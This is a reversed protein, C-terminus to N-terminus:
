AFNSETNSSSQCPSAVVSDDRLLTLIFLWFSSSLRSSYNGGIKTPFHKLISLNSNACKPMWTQNKRNFVSLSSFCAEKKKTKAPFAAKLDVPRVASVHYRQQKQPLRLSCRKSEMARIIAGAM